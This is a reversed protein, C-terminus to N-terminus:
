GARCRAARGRGRGVVLPRQLERARWASMTSAENTRPGSSTSRVAGGGPRARRRCRPRRASSRSRPAERAQGREQQGRQSRRREAHHDRAAVQRDLRSRAGRRAAPPSGTATRLRGRAPSRPWAPARCSRACRAHRRAGLDGVGRHRHAGLAHHEVLAGVDSLRHTASSSMRRRISCCWYLFRARYRRRCRPQGSPPRGSSPQGTPPRDSPSSRPSLAGRHSGSHGGTWPSSLAADAVM